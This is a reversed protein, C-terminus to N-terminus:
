LIGTPIKNLLVGYTSFLEEDALFATKWIPLRTLGSGWTQHTGRTEAELQSTRNVVQDTLPSLSHQASFRAYSGTGLREDVRHCFSNHCWLWACRTQTSAAGPECKRLINAIAKTSHSYLICCYRKQGHQIHLVLKPVPSTLSFEASGEM